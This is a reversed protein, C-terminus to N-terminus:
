RPRRAAPRPATRRPRARSAAAGGGPIRYGAAARSCPPPRASWRPCRSLGHGRAEPPRRRLVSPLNIKVPLRPPSSPASGTVIGPSQRPLTRELAVRRDEDRRAVAKPRGVAQDGVEVEGARGQEHQDRRQHPELRHLPSIRMRDPRPIAEVRVPIRAQQQRALPCGRWGLWDAAETGTSKEVCLRLSAFLAFREEQAPASPPSPTTPHVPEKGSRPLRQPKADKREFIRECPSHNSPAQCAPGKSLALCRASGYIVGAEM